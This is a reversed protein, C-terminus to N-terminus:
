TAIRRKLYDPGLERVEVTLQIDFGAIDAAASELATLVAEGLARKQEASRGPLIRLEAHVMAREAAGDGILYDSLRSLRTKCNLLDAGAHEVLAEHVVRAFAEAEFADALNASYEIEAQPM